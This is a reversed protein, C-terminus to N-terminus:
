VIRWNNTYVNMRKGRVFGVLTLGYLNAIKIGFTTPASKSAIIPIGASAAKLVIESSIRGSLLMIRDTTSIGKSLCEGIVKDVANHRGIDEHFFLIREGDSIGACHTGGTLKYVKALGQFERMLSLIKESSIKFSTKKIKKIRTSSSASGCGSFITKKCFNLPKETEVYCYKKKISFSSIRDIGSTFLLGRALYDLNEPSCLLTSFEKGNIFIKLGTEIAVDDYKTAKRRDEIVVIKKKEYM